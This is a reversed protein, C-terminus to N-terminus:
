SGGKAPKGGRIRIKQQEQEQEQQVQKVEQEAKQAEEVSLEKPKTSNGGFLYYGIWIVALFLIASAAILKVKANKDMPQAM